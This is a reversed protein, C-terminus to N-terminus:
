VLLEQSFFYVVTTRNLTTSSDNQQRKKTAEDVITALGGDGLGGNGTLEQGPHSVRIRCYVGV